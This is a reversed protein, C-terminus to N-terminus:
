GKWISLYPNYNCDEKKWKRKFKVPVRSDICIRNFECDKCIEIETLPIQSIQNFSIDNLITLLDVENALLNKISVKKHLWDINGDKNISLVKYIYTNFRDSNLMQYLNSIFVPFIVDEESLINLLNSNNKIKIKSQLVRPYLESILVDVNDCYLIISTEIQFYYISKFIIEKFRIDIDKDFFFRIVKTACVNEKVALFSIIDKLNNKSVHILFSEFHNPTEYSSPISTFNGLLSEDLNVILENEKLFSYLEKDDLKSFCERRNIDFLLKSWNNSILFHKNRTLDIILSRNYGKALYIDEFLIEM